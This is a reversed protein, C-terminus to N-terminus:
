LFLGYMKPVSKPDDLLSPFYKRCFIEFIMYFDSFISSLNKQM